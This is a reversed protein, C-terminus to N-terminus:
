LGMGKIQQCLDKPNFKKGIKFENTTVFAWTTGQVTIKPPTQTFENFASLVSDPSGYPSNPNWLSVPSTTSGYQGQPNCISQLNKADSTFKGLFTGDDGYVLYDESPETIPDESTLPPNGPTEGPGSQNTHGTLELVQEAMNGALDIAAVVVKDKSGSLEFRFQTGELPAQQGEVYVVAAGEATGEIVFAGKGPAAAPPLVVLTPPTSDVYTSYISRGNPLPYYYFAEDFLYFVLGRTAPVNAIPTIIERDEAKILGVEVATDLYNAPWLRGPKAKLALFKMLFAVTQAPTVPEDPRFTGDPMGIPDSGAKDALGAAMAINGSAWHNQIDPFLTSKGILKADEEKGFARVIITVLEARTIPRNLALGAGPSGKVIGLAQMRLGSIEGEAPTYAASAPGVLAWLLVVILALAFGRRKVSEGDERGLPLEM